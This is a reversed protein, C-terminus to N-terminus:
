DLVGRGIVCDGGDVLDDGSWLERFGVPLVQLVVQTAALLVQPRRDARTRVPTVPLTM